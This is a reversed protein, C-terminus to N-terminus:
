ASCNRPKSPSPSIPELRLERYSEGGDLGFIRGFMWHRSHTSDLVPAGVPREVTGRKWDGGRRVCCASKGCQAGGNAECRPKDPQLLKRRRITPSDSIFCNRLADQFDRPRNRAHRCKRPSCCRADAAHLVHRRPHPDTLLPLEENVLRLHPTPGPSLSHSITGTARCTRRCFSWM